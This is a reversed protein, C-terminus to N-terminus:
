LLTYFILPSAVIWFWGLALGTRDIWDEPSRWRGGAWLTLWSGAVGSAIMLPSLLVSFDLVDSLDPGPRALLGAVGITTLGALCALAGVVVALTGPRGAGDRLGPRPPRVRLFLAAVTLCAVPAAATAIPALVLFKGAYGPPQWIQPVIARDVWLAPALAAILVMADLVTFRRRAPTEL